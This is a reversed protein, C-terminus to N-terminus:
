TTPVTESDFSFNDLDKLEQENLDEMAMKKSNKKRAM